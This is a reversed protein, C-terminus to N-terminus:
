NRRLRAFCRETKRRAKAARAPQSSVASATLLIAKVKQRRIVNLASSKVAQAPLAIRFTIEAATVIQERGKEKTSIARHFYEAIVVFSGFNLTQFILQFRTDPLELHKVEVSDVRRM